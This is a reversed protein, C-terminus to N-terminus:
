AARTGACPLHQRVHRWGARADPCQSRRAVRVSQHSGRGADRERILDPPDVREAAVRAVGEPAHRAPQRDGGLRPRHGGDVRRRPRGSVRRSLEAVSGAPAPKKPRRKRKPAGEVGEVDAAAPEPTVSLPEFQLRVNVYESEAPQVQQVQDPAGGPPPTGLGGEGAQSVAQSLELYQQLQSPDIQAFLPQLALFERLEVNDRYRAWLPEYKKELTGPSVVETEIARLTGFDRRLRRAFDPWNRDLATLKVFSRMSLCHSAAWKRLGIRKEIGDRTTGDLVNYAHTAITITKQDESATKFVRDALLKDAVAPLDKRVSCYALVVERLMDSLRPARLLLDRPQTVGYAVSPLAQLATVVARMKDDFQDDAAGSSRTFDTTGSRIRSEVALMKVTWDASCSTALAELQDFLVASNLEITRLRSFEEVVYSQTSISATRSSNLIRMFVRDSCELVSSARPRMDAIAAMTEVELPDFTSLRPSELVLRFLAQSASIQRCLGHQTPDVGATRIKDDTADEGLTDLQTELAALTRAYTPTAALAAISRLCDESRAYLSVLKNLVASHDDTQHLSGQAPPPVATVAQSKEVSHRFMMWNCYQKVRRPNSGLAAFVIDTAPMWEPFQAAIFRHAAQPNAEPIHIRLQVIKEFYQQGERALRDTLSGSGGADNDQPGIDRYRIRLGRGIIEEDAAVLFVFKAHVLFVKIADLLDLAVDPACRDLDDLFICLRRDRQQGDQGREKLLEDLLKRFGDISEIRARTEENHERQLAGSGEADGLKLLGRIGAVLPSAASLAQFGATVASVIAQEQDLRWRAGGSKGIGGYLTDDLRALLKAYKQEETPPDTGERLLVADGALWQGWTKRAPAAIPEPTVKDGRGYLQAAIRIILARWLEDATKHPWAEFRIFEVPVDAPARTAAAELCSKVFYAFTTKGAGWEGYVGITFPTPVTGVLEALRQAHPALGLLDLEPNRLAEDTSRESM